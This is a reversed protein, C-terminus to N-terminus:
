IRTITITCGEDGKSVKRGEVTLQPIVQWCDDQPLRQTSFRLLCETSTGGEITQCLSHLQSKILQTIEEMRAKYKPVTILTVFKGRRAIMKRNKFSPIQLGKIRIVIPVSSAKVQTQTCDESSTKM